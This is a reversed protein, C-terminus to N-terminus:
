FLTIFATFPFCCWSLLAQGCCPYIISTADTPKLNGFSGLNRVSPIWNERGHFLLKTCFITVASKSGVVQLSLRSITGVTHSEADTASVTEPVQETTFTVQASRPPAGTCICVLNLSATPVEVVPFPNIETDKGPFM